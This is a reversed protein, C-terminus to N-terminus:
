RDDHDIKKREAELIEEVLKSDAGLQAAEVWLQRALRALAERQERTSMRSGNAAIFAGLGQRNDVTGEHELETYAKVITSPNVALNRALSRISPLRSGTALVGSAVYYRVQDMIQRYVPLGSSPNIHFRM